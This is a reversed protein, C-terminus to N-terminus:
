PFKCLVYYSLWFCKWSLCFDSQGNLNMLVLKHILCVHLETTLIQLRYQLRKHTGPFPKPQIFAFFCDHAHRHPHVSESGAHMNIQLHLMMRLQPFSDFLQVLWFRSDHSLPLSIGKGSPFYFFYNSKVLSSNSIGERQGPDSEHYMSNACFEIQRHRQM